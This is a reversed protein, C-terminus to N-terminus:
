CRAGPTRSLRLTGCVRRPEKLPGPGGGAGEGRGSKERAIERVLVELPIVTRTPSPRLQDNLRVLITPPRPHLALDLDDFHVEPPVTAAAFRPHLDGADFLRDLRGPHRTMIAPRPYHDRSTRLPVAEPALHSLALLLLDAKVNLVRNHGVGAVGLL